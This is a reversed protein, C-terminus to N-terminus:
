QPVENTDDSPLPADDVETRTLSELEAEVKSSYGQFIDKMLKKPMVIEVVWIPVEDLKGKKTGQIYDDESHIERPEVLVDRKYVVKCGYDSLRKAGEPNPMEEKPWMFACTVWHRDVLPGKVLEGNEWNEFVYIDLEDIVREFNKLVSLSSGSSYLTQINNIIDITDAM